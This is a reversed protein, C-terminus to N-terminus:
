ATLLLRLLPRTFRPMMDEDIDGGSRVIVIDALEPVSQRAVHNLIRARLAEAPLQSRWEIGISVLPGARTLLYGPARALDDAELGTEEALERAVSAEIDIAGEHVDRVDIFGGPPYALGANVNGSTQRGLLVHGEQSRLVASGFGDRVGADPYGTERWYLFSKFDARVFTGKFTEGALTGERLLYVTGDFMKPRETLARQWHAAIEARRREAFPWGGAEVSLGCRAIRESRDDSETPLGSAM